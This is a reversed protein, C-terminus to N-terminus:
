IQARDFKYKYRSYLILLIIEFSHKQGIKGKWNNEEWANTIIDAIILFVIYFASNEKRDFTWVASM